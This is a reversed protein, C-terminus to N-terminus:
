IMCCPNEKMGTPHILSGFYFLILVIFNICFPSQDSLTAPLYCHYLGALGYQIPCRTEVGGGGGGWLCFEIHIYTGSWLCCFVMNARARVPICLSCTSLLTAGHVSIQNSYPFCPSLSPIYIAVTHIPIPEGFNM